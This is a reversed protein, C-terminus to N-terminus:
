SATPHFTLLHAIASTRLLHEEPLDATLEVKDLLMSLNAVGSQAGWFFNIQLEDFTFSALDIDQYIQSTFTAFSGTTFTGNIPSTTTPFRLDLPLSTSTPQGMGTFSYTHIHVPLSNKLFKLIVALKFNSRASFETAESFSLRGLLSSDIPATLVISQQLRILNANGGGSVSKIIRAYKDGDPASLALFGSGGDTLVSLTGDPITTTWSGFDSEFSGNVILDDSSLFESSFETGKVSILHAASNTHNFTDFSQITTQTYILFQQAESLDRLTNPDIESPTFFFPSRDFFREATGSSGIVAFLNQSRSFDPEFLIFNFSATSEVFSPNLIKETISIGDLQVLDASNDLGGDHRIKESLDIGGGAICTTLAEAAGTQVQFTFTDLGSTSVIHASSLVIVPM